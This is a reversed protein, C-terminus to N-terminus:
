FNLHMKNDIYNIMENEEPQLNKWSNTKCKIVTLTNPPYSITHKRIIDITGYQALFQGIAHITPNHALIMLNNIDDPTNKIEEYIDGISANYLNDLFINNDCKINKTLYELSQITRSASSCKIMDVPMNNSTMYKGLSSAQKKGNETLLREKDPLEFSNEAQAHRVLYLTKM